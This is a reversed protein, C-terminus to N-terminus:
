IYNSAKLSGFVELLVMPYGETYSPLVFINNNDYLNILRNEETEIDLINVNKQDIIKNFKKEKGVVTLTIDENIEGM